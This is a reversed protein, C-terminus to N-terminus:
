TCLMYYLIIYTGKEKIPEYLFKIKKQSYRKKMSIQQSLQESLAICKYMVRVPRESKLNLISFFFCFTAFTQIKSYACRRKSVVAVSCQTGWGGVFLNVILDSLLQSINEEALDKTVIEMIREIEFRGHPWNVVLRGGVYGPLHKRRDVFGLLCASDFDWLLFKFIM